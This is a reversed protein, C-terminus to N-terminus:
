PLSYTPYIIWTRNTIPQWSSCFQIIFADTPGLVVAYSGKSGRQFQGHRAVAAVATTREAIHPGVAAIPATRNTGCGGAVEVESAGISTHVVVDASGVAVRHTAELISANINKSVEGNREYLPIPHNYRAAPHAVLPLQAQITALNGLLNLTTLPM